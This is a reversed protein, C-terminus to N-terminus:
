RSARYSSFFMNLEKILRRPIQDAMPLYMQLVSLCARIDGKSLRMAKPLPSPRLPESPPLLRLPSQSSKPKGNQIVGNTDAASRVAAPCLSQPIPLLTDFEFTTRYHSLLIAMAVTCSLIGDECIILISGNCMSSTPCLHMQSHNEDILCHTRYFALCAPILSECWLSRGGGSSDKKSLGARLILGPISDYTPIPVTIPVSVPASASDSFEYIDTSAFSPSTTNPSNFLPCDSLNLPPTTLSSASLLDTSTSPCSSSNLSKKFIFHEVVGFTSVSPVGTGEMLEKGADSKMISASPSSCPFIIVARLSTELSNHAAIFSQITDHYGKLEQEKRGTMSIRTVDEWNMKEENVRGDDDLVENRFSQSGSSREHLLPQLGINIRSSGISFLAPIRTIKPGEDSCYLSNFNSYATQDCGVKNVLFNGMSNSGKGSGIDSDRNSSEENTENSNFKIISMEGLSFGVSDISSTTGEGEEQGKEQLLLQCRSTSQHTGSRLLDSVCSDVQVAM